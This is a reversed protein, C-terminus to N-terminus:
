ATSDRLAGRTVKALFRAVNGARSQVAKSKVFYENMLHSSTLVILIYVPFFKQPQVKGWLRLAVAKKYFLQGIVGHLIFMPFALSGLWSMTKSGFFRTIAHPTEMTCDRHMQTLFKLYLPVFFIGRILADNLNLRTLRLGLSAYAASFCWLPNTTSEPAEDTQDLMVHRVAAVGMTIEM